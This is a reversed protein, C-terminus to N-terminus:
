EEKVLQRPWQLLKLLKKNEMGEGDLNKIRILFFSINECLKSSFLDGLASQARDVVNAGLHLTVQYRIIASM